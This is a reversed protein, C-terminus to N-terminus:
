PDPPAAVDGDAAPRTREHGSVSTPRIRLWAEVRGASWPLPQPVIRERDQREIREIEGTVVVAWGPETSPAGDDIEFEVPQHSAMLGLVSNAGTRFVITRGDTVHNVPYVVPRGHRAVAVRGSGAGDLHGWCADTTMVDDGASM